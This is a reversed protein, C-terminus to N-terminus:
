PLDIDVWVLRHDSSVREAGDGVLAYGEARPAPWFVGADQVELGASPLVYDVRMNGPGDEDRWDATDAAAPGLHTVNAGGQALAAAVAGKSTPRPDQVEPHALLELLAERRAAGDIPDANLTGMLVFPGGEFAAERGDDDRLPVGSLYRNFFAIEDHNRLGNRDEPGDFVPRRSPM